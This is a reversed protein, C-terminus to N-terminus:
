SNPHSAKSHDLHYSTLGLPSSFTRDEGHASRDKMVAGFILLPETSQDLLFVVGIIVDEVLEGEGDSWEVGHRVGLVRGQGVRVIEEHATFLDQGTSLTNVIGVKQDLPHLRDPDGGLTHLPVNIRESQTSRRM